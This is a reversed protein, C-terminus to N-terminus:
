EGGAAWFDFFNFWAYPTRLVHAELLSAFRQALAPLRTAREARPIRCADTLVECHVEYAGDAVRCFLCIIPAKLAAAIMYPGLPFAAPQGLFDCQTTRDGPRHRDGLIGVWDGARISEAIRLGIESAGQNSDIIRGILAPNVEAMADIFRANIQKDLVIRLNIGGLEPGVVRSAEFSGFHATLFIGPKGRDVVERLEKSGVFRINLRETRGALIYLRDAAVRAFELFHRLVDFDRVPRQLARRLFARSARREPARTCYFYLVTPYLLARLARRNLVTGIWMLFRLGLVSGAEPRAKWGAERRGQGQRM